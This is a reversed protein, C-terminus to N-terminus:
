LNIVIKNGRRYWSGGNGNATYVSPAGGLPRNGRGAHPGANPSRNAGCNCAPKRLYGPAHIKAASVAAKKAVALPSVGPARMQSAKKAADTAFRVYAKAVEFERDENSLGELELEFLNTAASALKGGIMGGIPGGFFSGAAKGVIPLAKKAASKLIGGLAKGTPSKVFTGAAGVAKKFLGGLFQDLEAENQVELLETALETELSEQNFENSYENSFENSYENGFENSYENSFENGFEFTENSFENGLEFTENSFESGFEAERTTRDFDHM